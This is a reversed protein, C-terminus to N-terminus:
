YNYISKVLATSHKNREDASLKLKITGQAEELCKAAFRKISYASNESVGHLSSLHYINTAYVDAMTTIGADRLPKVRFGSRDRNVEEVPLGRLVNLAENALIRNAAAEIDKKEKHADGNCLEIKKHIQEYQSILSFFPNNRNNEPVYYNNYFLNQLTQRFVAPEDEFATWAAGTPVYQAAEAEEALRPVLQGYSGNLLDCLEHYARTASERGRKGGLLWSLGALGPNLLDMNRAIGSRPYSNNVAEAADIAPRAKEYKYLACILAEIDATRSIFPVNECDRLILTNLTGSAVLQRAAIDVNSKLQSSVAAATDLASLLAKHRSIVQNAEKITFEKAM